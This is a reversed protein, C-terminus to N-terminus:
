SEAAQKCPVCLVANPMYELRRPDIKEGCDSCIRDGADDYEAHVAEASHQAIIRAIADSRQMEEIESARDCDDAM